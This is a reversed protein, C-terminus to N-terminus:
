RGTVPAKPLRKLGRSVYKFGPLHGHKRIDAAMATLDHHFKAAHEERLRRIEAVIPDNRM